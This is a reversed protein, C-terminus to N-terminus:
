DVEAQDTQASVTVNGIGLNPCIAEYLMDGALGALSIADLRTVYPTLGSIATWNITAKHYMSNPWDLTSLTAETTTSNYTQFQLNFSSTIQLVM